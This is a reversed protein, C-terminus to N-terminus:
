TRTPRASAERRCARGRRFRLACVGILRAPCHRRAGCDASGRREAGVRGDAGVHSQRAAGHVHRHGLPRGGRRAVAADVRRAVLTPVGQRDPPSGALSRRSLRSRGTPRRGVGTRRGPSHARERAPDGTRRGDPPRSQGGGLRVAAFTGGLVVVFVAAAAALWIRARQPRVAAVKQPTVAVREAISTWADAPPEVAIDDTVLAALADEYRALDKRADPNEDLFREIRARELDDTANVAYAALM